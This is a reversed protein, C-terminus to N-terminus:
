RPLPFSLTRADLHGIPCNPWPMGAGASGNSITISFSSSPKWVLKNMNIPKPLVVRVSAAATPMSVEDHGGIPRWKVAPMSPQWMEVAEAPLAAYRELVAVTASDVESLEVTGREPLQASVGAALGVLLIVAITFRKMTMYKNLLTLKSM